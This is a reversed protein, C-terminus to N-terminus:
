ICLRNAPTEISHQLTCLRYNEDFRKKIVRETTEVATAARRSLLCLCVPWLYRRCMYFCVGISSKKTSSPWPPPWVHITSASHAKSVNLSSTAGCKWKLYVSWTVGYEVYISFFFFLMEMASKCNLEVNIHWLFTDNIINLHEKLTYKPAQVIKPSISICSNHRSRTMHGKQQLCEHEQWFSSM